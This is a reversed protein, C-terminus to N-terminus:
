SGSSTELDLQMATSTAFGSAHSHTATPATVGCSWPMSTEFFLYSCIEPMRYVCRVRVIPSTRLDRRASRHLKESPTHHAHM